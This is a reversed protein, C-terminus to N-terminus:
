VIVTKQNRMFERMGGTGTRITVRFKTYGIGPVDDDTYPDTGAVYKQHPKELYEQQAGKYWDERHKVEEFSDWSVDEPTLVAKPALEMPNAALAALGALNRFFHRRKM